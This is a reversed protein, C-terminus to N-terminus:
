PPHINDDGFKAADDNRAATPKAYALAVDVVPPAHRELRVWFRGSLMLITKREPMKTGDSREERSVAWLNEHSKDTAKGCCRSVLRQRFDM